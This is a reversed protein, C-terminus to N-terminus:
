SRGEGDDPPPMEEEDEHVVMVPCRAHRVVSESVSGIPAAGESGAGRSGIVILDVGLAEGLTVIEAEPEGSRLHTEMSVGEDEMRVALKNLLKEAHESDEEYITLSDDADSGLGSHYSAVPLVHVVHLEAEGEKFFGAAKRAAVESGQSGDTALLVRKPLGESM